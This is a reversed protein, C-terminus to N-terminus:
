LTFMTWKLLKGKWSNVRSRTGNKVIFLIYIRVLSIDEDPHMLKSTLGSSSEPKKIQPAGTITASASISSPSASSSVAAASPFTPKGSSGSSTISPKFDPGLPGSGSSSASSQFIFLINM